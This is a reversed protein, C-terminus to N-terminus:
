YNKWSFFSSGLGHMSFPPDSVLLRYRPIRQVPLLLYGELNLQTHRPNIRCRKLYTKIRKRQGATLNPAGTTPKSEPLISPTSVGSISLGLSALQATSASPSLSAGGAVSRDSSWYRIRQVSNDFNSCFNTLEANM